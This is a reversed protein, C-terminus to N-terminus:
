ESDKREVSSRPKAEAKSKADAKTKADPQKRYGNRANGRIDQTMYAYWGYGVLACAVAGGIALSRPSYPPFVFM